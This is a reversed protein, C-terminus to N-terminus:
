NKNQERKRQINLVSNVKHYIEQRYAGANYNNSDLINSNDGNQADIGLLLGVRYILVCKDTEKFGKPWPITNYLGWYVKGKVEKEKITVSDIYECLTKRAEVPNEEWGNELLGGMQLRNINEVLIEELREKDGGSIFTKLESRSSNQIKVKRSGVLVILMDLLPLCAEEGSISMMDVGWLLSDYFAIDACIANVLYTSLSVRMDQLKGLLESRINRTNKPEIEEYDQFASLMLSNIQGWDTSHM